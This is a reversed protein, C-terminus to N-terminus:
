KYNKYDLRPSNSYTWKSLSTSWATLSELKFSSYGTSSVNRPWISTLSIRKCYGGLGQTTQSRTSSWLMYKKASNRLTCVIKLGACRGLITNTKRRRSKSYRILSHCTTVFSLWGALHSTLLCIYSHFWIM